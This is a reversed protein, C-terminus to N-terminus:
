WQKLVILLEFWSQLSSAHSQSWVFRWLHATALWWFRLYMYIAPIWIYSVFCNMRLKVGGDPRLAFVAKCPVGVRWRDTSLSLPAIIESRLRSNECVNRSVGSQNEWEHTKPADDTNSIGAHRFFCTCQCPHPALCAMIQLCLTCITTNLV